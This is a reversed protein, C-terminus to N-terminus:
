DKSTFISPLHDFGYRDLLPMVTLQLEGNADAILQAAQQVDPGRHVIGNAMIDLLKAGPRLESHQDALSGQHIKTIILMSSDKCKGLELGVKQEPLIKNMICTCTEARLPGEEPGNPASVGPATRVAVEVSDAM